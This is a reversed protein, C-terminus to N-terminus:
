NKRATPASKDDQLGALKVMIVQMLQDQLSGSPGGKGDHSSPPVILVTKPSPIKAIGEAWAISRQKAMEARLKLIEPTAGGREMKARAAEADAVMKQAEFNAKALEIKSNEMLQQSELQKQQATALKQESEAVTQKLKERAVEVEKEAEVTSQKQKQKMEAEVKAVEAKGAEIVKGTEQNEKNVSAKAQEALQYAERRADIQRQTDPDYTSKTQSYQTIGLNYEVLPSPAVEIPEKDPGLAIRTVFVRERDSGSFQHLTSKTDVVQRVVEQEAQEFKYLHKELQERVTQYFEAQRQAHYESVSMLPGTNKLCTALHHRVMNELAKVGGTAFHRHLELRKDEEVPLNLRIHHSTNATGADSFTVEISTDEKNGEDKHESFYLDLYRPWTWVEGYLQLYLGGKDVVRISGDPYQCVQWDEDNNWEFLSGASFLFGLAVVLALAYALNGAFFGIVSGLVSAFSMGEDERECERDEDYRNRM